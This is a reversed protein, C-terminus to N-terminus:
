VQELLPAASLSLALLLPVKLLAPPLQPRHSYQQRQGV